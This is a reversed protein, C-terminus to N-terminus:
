DDRSVDITLMVTILMPNRSREMRDTTEKMAENLLELAGSRSLANGKREVHIRAIAAVGESALTQSLASRRSTEKKPRPQSPPPPSPRQKSGIIVEGPKVISAVASPPIPTAFDFDQASEFASAGLMSQKGTSLYAEASGIVMRLELPLSRRTEDQQLITRAERLYKSASLDDRELEVLRALTHKVVVDRLTEVSEAIVGLTSQVATSSTDFRTSALTDVIELPKQRALSSCLTHTCRATRLRDCGLNGGASGVRAELEDVLAQTLPVFSQAADRILRGFQEVNKANLSRDALPVGLIATGLTVARAWITSEPLATHDGDMKSKAM